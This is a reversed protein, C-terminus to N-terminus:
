QCNEAIFLRIRDALPTAMQETRQMAELARTYHRCAAASEGLADYSAALNVTAAIAHPHDPGLRQALGTEAQAFARIAEGFRSRKYYRKGLQYMIQPTSFHEDLLRVLRASFGHVPWTM